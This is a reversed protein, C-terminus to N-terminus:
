IRGQDPPESGDMRDVDGHCIPDDKCQFGEDHFTAFAKEGDGTEVPVRFVGAHMYKKLLQHVSCRYKMALTKYMSFKLLHAYRSLTSVNEALQYYRYMRRIERNYVHLIKADSLHVLEKKHVPKLKGNQEKVAGFQYLRKIRVEKPLLLKCQEKVTIDYGLFRVHKKAHKLDLAERSFPLNLEQQLFRVIENGIASSEKKSGTVGLLIEGAYRTYVLRKYAPDWPDERPIQKLQKTWQQQLRKLDEKEAENEADRRRQEVQKIRALLKEYAPNVRRKKGKSFERILTEVHRDLAHFYINVLVPSIWGGVPVGSFTRHFQWDEFWGARLFKNILRIFKEDEIRKRLLSRLVEFSISPFFSHLSGHLLWKVGSFNKKVQLLATHCSRHSRYGHSLDSFSGEYIAELLMRVIWAVLCDRLPETKGAGPFPAPQYTENKLEKILAELQGPLLKRHRAQPFRRILEQYAKQYFRPNYLNRYIRQFLYTSDGSKAALSNLVYEPNRM